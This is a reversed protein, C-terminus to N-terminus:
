RQEQGDSTTHTPGTAGAPRILGAYRELAAAAADVDCPVATLLAEVRQQAAVVQPDGDRGNRRAMMRYPGFRGLLEDRRALPAGYAQEVVDMARDIRAMRSLYADLDARGEPVAGLVDPEPVALRPANAIAAVCRAVLERAGTERVTLAALREAAVRRDDVLRREAAAADRVAQRRSATTVILDREGRAADVELTALVDAVDGGRAARTAVDDIRRGLLEVQPGWSPEQRVLERLREMASRLAAVRAPADSASPDFALRTRLQTALADSLRCAEVLSLAMGGLGAGGAAGGGGPAERAWILVSMRERATGDARGSDWLRLLARLRDDVSQWLAMSLTVDGAYADPDNARLSAADLQELENRRRTAWDALETLYGTLAPVPAAEGLRGPAAPAIVPGPAASGPSIVTM